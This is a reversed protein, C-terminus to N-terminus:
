RHMTTEDEPDGMQETATYLTRESATQIADSLINLFDLEAETLQVSSLLADIYEKSNM